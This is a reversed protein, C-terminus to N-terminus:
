DVKWTMGLIELKERGARKALLLAFLVHWCAIAAAAFVHWGWAHLYYPHFTDCLFMDLLWCAIGILILVIGSLAIRLTTKTLKNRLVEKMCGVVLAVDIVGHCPHYLMWTWYGPYLDLLWYGSTEVVLLLWIYPASADGPYLLFLLAVEWWMIALEDWAQGWRTMTGHFAMSGLGVMVLCVGISRLPFLMKDNRGVCFTTLGVIVFFINSITNHWEAIVSSQAYDPECWSFLAPGTLSLM